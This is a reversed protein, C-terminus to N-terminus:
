ENGEVEDEKIDSEFKRCLEDIAQRLIESETRGTYSAVKILREKLPISIRFNVAKTETKQKVGFYNGM